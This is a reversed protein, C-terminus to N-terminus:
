SEGVGPVVRRGALTQGLPGVFGQAQQPRTRIFSDVCVKLGVLGAGACGGNVRHVKSSERRDFGFVVRLIEEASVRINRWCADPRYSESGNDGHTSSEFDMQRVRTRFQNVGEPIKALVNVAGETIIVSDRDLLNIGRSCLKM